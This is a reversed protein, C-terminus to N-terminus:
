SKKVLGQFIIADSFISKLNRINMLFYLCQHCLVKKKEITIKM